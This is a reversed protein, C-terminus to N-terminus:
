TKTNQLYCVCRSENTEEGAQSTRGGEAEDDLGRRRMRIHSSSKNGLVNNNGFVDSWCYMLEM